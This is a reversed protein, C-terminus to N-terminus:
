RAAERAPGPRRAALWQTALARLATRQVAPAAHQVAIPRTRLGCPQCPQPLPLSPSRVTRKGRSRWALLDTSSYCSIGIFDVRPTSYALTHSFFTQGGKHEGFWYFVGEHELMSGGHAQIVRGDTDRWVEGPRFAPARRRDQQM